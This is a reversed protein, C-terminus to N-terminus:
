FPLELRMFVSQKEHDGSGKTRVKQEACSSLMAALLVVLLIRFARKDM